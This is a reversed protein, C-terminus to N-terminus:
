PAQISTQDIISDNRFTVKQTPTGAQDYVLGIGNRFGYSYPITKALKGDEYFWRQQGHLAGCKFSYEEQVTQNEYYFITKVLKGDQFVHIFDLKTTDEGWYNKLEGTFHKHVMSEAVKANEYKLAIECSDLSTDQDGIPHNRDLSTNCAGLLLTAITWTLIPSKM